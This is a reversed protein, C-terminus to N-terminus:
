LGKSINWIWNIAILTIMPIYILKQKRILEESRTYFTLLSTKNRILDILIWLPVTILLMAAIAGLPNILIAQMFNGDLIALVSRTIGCSPCPMGTVNKILCITSSAEQNETHLLNYGIWGYSGLTLLGLIWYIKKRSNM